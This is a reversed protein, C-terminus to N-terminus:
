ALWHHRCDTVHVILSTSLSQHSFISEAFVSVVDNMQNLILKTGCFTIIQTYSYLAFYELPECFELFLTFINFAKLHVCMQMISYVLSHLIEDITIFLLLIYIYIYLHMLIQHLDHVLAYCTQQSVGAVRTWTGVHGLSNKKLSTGHCFLAIFM